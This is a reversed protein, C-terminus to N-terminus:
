PAPSFLNLSYLGDADLWQQECRMGGALALEDIEAASDDLSVSLLPAQVGSALTITSGNFGENAM